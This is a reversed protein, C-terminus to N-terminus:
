APEECPIKIYVYVVVVSVWEGKGAVSQPLLRAACLRVLNKSAFVGSCSRGQMIM